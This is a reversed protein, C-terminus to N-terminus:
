FLRANNLIGMSFIFSFEQIIHVLNQCTIYFTHKVRHVFFPPPPPQIKRISRESTIVDWGLKSKVQSIHLVNANLSISWFTRERKNFFLERGNQNLFLKHPEIRGREQKFLVVKECYVRGRFSDVSGLNLNDQKVFNFKSSFKNNRKISIM